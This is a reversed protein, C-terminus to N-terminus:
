DRQQESLVPSLKPFVQNQFAEMKQRLSPVSSFYGVKARYARAM